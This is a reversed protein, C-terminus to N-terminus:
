LIYVTICMMITGVYQSLLQCFSECQYEYHPQSHYLEYSEHKLTDFMNPLKDKENCVDRSGKGQGHRKENKEYEDDKPRGSQEQRLARKM